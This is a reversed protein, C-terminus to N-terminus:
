QKLKRNRLVPPKKSKAPKKTCTINLTVCIRHFNGAEIQQSCRTEVMRRFESETVNLVLSTTGEPLQKLEAPEDSIEEPEAASREGTTNFPSAYGNLECAINLAQLPVLLNPFGAYNTAEIAATFMKFPTEDRNCLAPVLIDLITDIAPHIQAETFRQRRGNRKASWRVVRAYNGAADSLSTESKPWLAVTSFIKGARPDNWDGFLARAAKAEITTDPQFNRKRSM